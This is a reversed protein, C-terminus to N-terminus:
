VTVHMYKHPHQICRHWSRNALLRWLRNSLNLHFTSDDESRTPLARVVTIRSKTISSHFANLCSFLWLSFFSASRSRTIHTKNESLNYYLTNYRYCATTPKHYSPWKIFLYCFLTMRNNKWIYFFNSNYTKYPIKYQVHAHIKKINVDNNHHWRNVSCNLNHIIKEMLLRDNSM